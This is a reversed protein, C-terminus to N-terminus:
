EYLYGEEMLYSKLQTRVRGLRVTVTNPRMEYAKAIESVSDGFWYRRLFLDRNQPSITGLFRSIAHGLARAEIQDDLMRDPIYNELEELSLDYRSNRKQASQYRLRDLALNRGIRYVFGSLPDPKQPPVTNWVELYTDNVSEEADQRNGLINMATLHLRKGFSRALLELAKEARNWLLHVITKENM